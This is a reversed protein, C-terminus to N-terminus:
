EMFGEIVLQPDGKWIGARAVLGHKGEGALEVLREYVSDQPAYAPWSKGEVILRLPNVEKVQAEIVFLRGVWPGLEKFALENLFSGDKLELDLEPEYTLPIEEEPADNGASPTELEFFDGRAGETTTFRAYLPFHDSYGGGARGAFTWRLPRGLADANVGPLVLKDFSGDIYRIGGKDYLGRTLLLHMLAGRRGRWVESYREEPPLEFWLNYLDPGDKRQLARENGQSGLVHNIGTKMDPFLKAHNYHANLDGGAIVDAFPEKNLREELLKRLVRANAVRIPESNPNSAGSKWHNNYVVLPSGEVDLEVELIDRAKRLPHQRASIVPFKSFVANTHAIRQEKQKAPSVVVEYGRMGRDAMAKLLWAEAPFGEYESRRGDTLMAAATTSRFKELFADYDEVSSDPTFDAELEQFLIVEPGAGDGFEKLVAVTNELKTLLKRRSYRLPNDKPGQRYDEFVAVGDVDFLNEVNYVVVTFERAQVPAGFICFFLVWGSWLSRVGRFPGDSKWFSRSESTM